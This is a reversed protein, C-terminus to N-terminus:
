MERAYVNMTVETDGVDTKSAAPEEAEVRMPLLASALPFTAADAYRPFADLTDPLAIWLYPMDIISLLTLYSETNQVVDGAIELNNSFPYFDVQFYRRKRRSKEMVRSWFVREEGEDSRLPMVWLVALEIEFRDTDLTTATIMDAYVPESNTTGIFKLYEM